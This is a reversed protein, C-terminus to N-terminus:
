LPVIGMPNIASHYQWRGKYLEFHLHQGTSHGTSGMVGIQQGKSVRQGTSVLRSSMHAYVTTYLQGNISHLIYVVNGYSSSYHSVYVEGEAAAVIPVSGSKAIDVGWHFTGWRGGYTSTIVGAAPRTFSGSSVRPAASSNSAGASSATATQSRRAEEAKLARQIAADQAALVSEQEQLDMVYEHAETEQEKLSTLLKSKEARQSHLQQQMKKLEGLLTELNALDKKVKAQSKELELKDAEHQKLIEQDAQLLTAVANARGIFDSFSEAGLLVDLYNVMGGNEQYSRARDKLLASRKNMREQIVKIKAQLKGIESKTKAIQSQKATIKDTTTSIASDIQEMDDKVTSQQKQLNNIKDKAKKIDSSVGSRKSQITNQKGKLESLSAAETQHPISAVLTGLGLASAVTLAMVQKKM